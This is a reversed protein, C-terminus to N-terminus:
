GCFVVKLVNFCFKSINDIVGLYQSKELMSIVDYFEGTPYLLFTM